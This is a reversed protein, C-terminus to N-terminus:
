AFDCAPLSYIQFEFRGSKFVPGTVTEQAPHWGARGKKGGCVRVGVGGGGWEERM